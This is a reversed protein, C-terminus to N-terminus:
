DRVRGFNMCFSCSEVYSVGGWVLIVSLRLGICRALFPLGNSLCVLLTLDFEIDRLDALGFYGGM